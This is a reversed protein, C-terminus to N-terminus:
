YIRKGCVILCNANAVAEAESRFWEHITVSGEYRLSDHVYISFVQQGSGNWGQKVEWPYSMTEVEAFKMTESRSTTTSEDRMCASDDIDEQGDVGKQEKEL